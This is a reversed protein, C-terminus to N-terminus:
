ALARMFSRTTERYPKHRSMVEALKSGVPASVFFVLAGQEKALSEAARMLGMGAGTHRASELVFVSETTAIVRGFHPVVNVILSLFGVMREGDFAGIAHMLGAAEMRKYLDWQPAIPGLEGIASERAYEHMLESGMAAHEIDAVLCDRIDIRETM